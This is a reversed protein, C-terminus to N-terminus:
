KKSILYNTEGYFDYFPFFESLVFNAGHNTLQFGFNSGTEMYLILYKNYKKSLEFIKDATESVFIMGTAVIYDARQIEDEINTKEGNEISTSYLELGVKQKELDIVKLECDKRKAEEIIETVAGLLLVKANKQVPELLKEARQTAKERLSGKFSCLNKHTNKKNIICFLSDLVAIRLYTPINQDLVDLSSKNVFKSLSYDIDNQFYSFGYANEFLLLCFNMDTFIVESGKITYLTKGLIINDIRLDKQFNEFHQNAEKALSNLINMFNLKNVNKQTFDSLNYM